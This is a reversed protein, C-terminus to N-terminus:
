GIRVGQGTFAGFTQPQAQQRPAAAGAGAPARMPPAEQEDNQAAYNPAGPMLNGFGSGQQANKFHRYIYHSVFIFTTYATFCILIVITAFTDM